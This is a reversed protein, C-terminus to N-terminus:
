KLERFSNLNIKYLKLKEYFTSRSIKLEECSKRVNGRNSKLIEIIKQSEGEEKLDKLSNKGEYSMIEQPLNEMLIKGEGLLIVRAMARKLERVNGKFPYNRLKEFFEEEPEEYIFGERKCSEKLFYKALIYIDEKRERLPPIEIKIGNLRYFLDKRFKNELVMEELNKNTAAILKVDVKIEKDSGVPIISSEEIARLLKPQLSINLDGIEDLFLTGSDASLFKGKREEVAGTFAGKKHGFLESEALEDPIASCNVAVFPGRSNKSLSHIFKAILEKGTGTEGFILIPESGRAVKESLNLVAEMKKSAFIIEDRSEKKLTTENCANQLVILLKERDFPKEIFDYAGNKVADVASSISAHGSIMIVNVVNRKLLPILDRGDGDPLLMDVLAVDLEKSSIIEKAEKLNSAVFIEYGKKSLIATLVERIGKEDDVILVKAM